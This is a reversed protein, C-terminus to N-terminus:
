VILIHPLCHFTAVDAVCVCTALLSSTHQMRESCCLTWCAFNSVCQSFENQFLGTVILAERRGFTCSINDNLVLAYQHLCPLMTKALCSSAHECWVM